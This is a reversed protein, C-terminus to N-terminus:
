RIWGATAAIGIPVLIWGLIRQLRAYNRGFRWNQRPLWVNAAQLDIAPVFLDVSYWIPSYPRSSDETRQPEVNQRHRFVLCGILIVLMSWYLAREPARGYRVLGDLMLDSWWRPSWYGRFLERRERRKMRVFVEDARDSYGHSSFFAELRSYTERSYKSGEVWAVLKLWDSENEGASIEEYAMGNIGSVKWPMKGGLRNLMLFHAGSLDAEQEIEVNQLFAPGLVRTSRMYVNQAHLSEINLETQVVTRSLGLETLSNKMSHWQLQLEGFQGDRLSLTKSCTPDLMIVSGKVILHDFSAPGEFLTDKVGFEGGVETGFFDVGARFTANVLQVEREVKMITFQNTKEPEKEAVGNFHAGNLLLQERIEAGRFIVPNAFSANEFHAVRNVKLSNFNALTKQSGDFHAGNFSIEGGFEAGVFDVSGKFVADRFSADGRVRLANFSPSQM